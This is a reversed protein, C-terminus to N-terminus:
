QDGLVLAVRGVVVSPQRSPSRAANGEHELRPNM